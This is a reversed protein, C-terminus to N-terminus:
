KKKKPKETMYMKPNVNGDTWEIGKVVRYHDYYYDFIEVSSNSQVIDYITKGEDEYTVIYSNRPLTKDKSAKRECNKHIIKM